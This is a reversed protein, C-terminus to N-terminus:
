EAPRTGTCGDGDRSWKTCGYFTNGKDKNRRLKMASGCEPCRPPGSGPSEVTQAPHELLLVAKEVAVAIREWVALVKDHYTPESM